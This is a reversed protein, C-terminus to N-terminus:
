RESPGRDPRKPDLVEYDGELTTGPGPRQRPHHRSTASRRSQIWFVIGVIAAAALASLFFVLGFVVSVALIALATLAAFFRAVPGPPRGDILFPHRTQM